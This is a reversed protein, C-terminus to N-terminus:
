EEELYEYSTAVGNVIVQKVRQFEDKKYSFRIDYLGPTNQRKVLYRQPPGFTYPLYGIIREFRGLCAEPFNTNIIADYVQDKYYEFERVEGRHTCRLLTGDTDYVVNYFLTDGNYRGGTYFSSVLRKVGDAFIVSDYNFSATYIGDDYNLIYGTNPDIKMKIDWIENATRNRYDIRVNEGEYYIDATISKARDVGDVNVLLGQQNYTYRIFTNPGTILRIKYSVVKPPEKQDSKTCGAILTFALLVLTGKLRNIRNRRMM